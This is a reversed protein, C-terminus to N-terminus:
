NKRETLRTVEALIERVQSDPLLDDAHGPQTKEKAVDILANMSEIDDLTDRWGTFLEKVAAVIANATALDPGVYWSTVDNGYLSIWAHYLGSKSNQITGAAVVHRDLQPSREIEEWASEDDPHATVVEARRIQAPSLPPAKRGRHKSM